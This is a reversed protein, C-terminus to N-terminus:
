SNLKFGLIAKLGDLKVGWNIHTLLNACLASLTRSFSELVVPDVKDLMLSMLEISSKRVDDDNDALIVSKLLIKLCKGLRTKIFLTLRTSNSVIFM